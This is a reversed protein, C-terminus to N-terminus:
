EEWYETRYDTSEVDLYRAFRRARKRIEELEEETYGQDKYYDPCYLLRLADYLIGQDVDDLVM